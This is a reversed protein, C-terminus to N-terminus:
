ALFKKILDNWQGAIRSPHFAETSSRACSALQLRKVEDEILLHLKNELTNQSNVPILIGNVGSDILESPGTPCDTSICALNAYMAEILVNPFGEFNSSLVFIKSKKYYDTIKKTSSIIKVQNKINLEETLSILREKLPGNGIINLCWNSNKLNAFSRILLEHNKQEVLRGICLITNEKKSHPSFNEKLFNQSLPNKIVSLKNNSLIKKYYSEIEKTQVVLHNTFPYILNRLFNLKKKPNSSGLPNNRESIICPINTYRSALISIINVNTIFGILLDIKHIKILKIINSIFFVNNFVADKVNYSEKKKERCCLLRINSNLPYFPKVYVLQIISVSYENILENSLTSIVREAGGSNLSGVVFAIHKKNM